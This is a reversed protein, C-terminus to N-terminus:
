LYTMEGKLTREYLWPFTEKMRELSHPIGPRDWKHTIFSGEMTSDIECLLARDTGFAEVVRDLANEIEGDILATPLNIFTGLLQSSLKEFGPEQIPRREGVDRIATSILVGDKTELQSQSIEVAFEGGEKSLGHLELGAVGPRIHPDMSYYSQYGFQGERFREPILMEIREGILEERRYGFLQETQANVLVIRGEADALVMADPASEFLRSFSLEAPKYDSRDPTFADSTVVL